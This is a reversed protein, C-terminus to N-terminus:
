DSRLLFEHVRETFYKVCVTLFFVHGSEDLHHFVVTTLFDSVEFVLLSMKFSSMCCFVQKLLLNTIASFCSDEAIRATACSTLADTQYVSPQHNSDVRDSQALLEPSLLALKHCELDLTQIGGLVGINVILYFDLHIYWVYFSFSMLLNVLNFAIDKCHNLDYRIVFSIYRHAYTSYRVHYDSNKAFGHSIVM